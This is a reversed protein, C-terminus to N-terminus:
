PSLLSRSSDCNQARSLTHSSGTRMRATHCVRDTVPTTDVRIRGESERYRGAFRAFIGDKQVRRLTVLDDKAEFIVKDGQKLRLM